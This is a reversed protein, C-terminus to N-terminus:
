SDGIALVIADSTLLRGTPIDLGIAQFHLTDFATRSRLEGGGRSTSLPAPSTM